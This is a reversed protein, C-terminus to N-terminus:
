GIENGHVSCTVLVVVKGRGFIDDLEAPTPAGGQFYLKRQRDKHRDLTAITDASSIEVVVFPNGGSTRGLERLRVRDSDRAALEMYAVIRDWRALKRDE